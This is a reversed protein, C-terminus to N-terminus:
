RSLGGGSPEGKVMPLISMSLPIGRSNFYDFGPDGRSIRQLMEAKAKNLAELTEPEDMIWLAVADWRVKAENSKTNLLDICLSELTAFGIDVITAVFRKSAESGLALAELPVTEHTDQLVAFLAIKQRTRAPHYSRSFHYRIFEDLSLSTRKTEAEDKWEITGDDRISDSIGTVRPEFMGFGLADYIECVQAQTVRFKKKFAAAKIAFNWGGLHGVSPYVIGDLDMDDLILSSFASTIKYEYPNKAPARFRDAIFADALDIRLRELKNVTALRGEIDAKLPASSFSTTGYRRVHDFEGVIMANFTEDPLKELYILEVRDGTHLGLESCVTEPNLSAYLVPQSPRHCRGFSTIAEPRRLTLENINSYVTDGYLQRGRVFVGIDQMDARFGLLVDFLLRVNEKIEEWPLRREGGGSLVEIIEVAKALKFQSLPDAM